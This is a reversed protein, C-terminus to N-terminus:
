PQLQTWTTVPKTNAYVRGKPHPCDEPVDVVCYVKKYGGLYGIIWRDVYVDPMAMIATRVNSVHINLLEALEQRTLGEPHKKLCERIAKQRTPRM